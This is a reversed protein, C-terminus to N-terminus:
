LFFVSFTPLHEITNRPEARKQTKEIYGNDMRHSYSLSRQTISQHQPAKSEKTAKNHVADQSFLISFMPLERTKLPESRKQLKVSNQSRQTISHHQPARKQAKITNQMRHSFPLSRQTISQHQPARKQAKITNEM